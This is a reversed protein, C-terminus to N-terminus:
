GPTKLQATTSRRASTVRQLPTVRQRREGPALRSIRSGVSGTPGSRAPGGGTPGSRAPGGGTEQTAEGGKVPSDAAAPTATPPVGAPTPAVGMASLEGLRRELHDVRALLDLDTVGVAPLVLRACLIELTLRPATAGRRRSRKPCCWIAIRTSM